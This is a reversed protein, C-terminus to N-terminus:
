KLIDFSEHHSSHPFFEGLIKDSGAPHVTVYATSVKRHLMVYLLFTNTHRITATTARSILFTRKQFFFTSAKEMMGNHKTIFAWLIGTLIEFGDIRSIRRKEPHAKKFIEGKDFLIAHFFEKSCLFLFPTTWGTPSRNTTMVTETKM